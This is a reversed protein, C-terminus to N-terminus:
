PMSCATPIVQSKKRVLFPKYEERNALSNNKKRIFYFSLGFFFFGSIMSVLSPNMQFYPALSNGIVAGITLLIIPFVYLLFTLFLIPKTELGIIVHDGKKVDLTNKVTVTIEKKNDGAGCSERSACAECAGSRTTTIWATSKDANTVIGNETIM